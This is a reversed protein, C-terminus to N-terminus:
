GMCNIVILEVNVILLYYHYNRSYLPGILVDFIYDSLNETPKPLTVLHIISLLKTVIYRVFIIM